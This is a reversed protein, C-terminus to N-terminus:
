EYESKQQNYLENYLGNNAVLEEHTGEEITKGHELVIIKSARRITAFNHSILLASTNEPLTEINRFIQSASQADVAATPEDLVYISADRYFVRALAMKQREGKSLEQGGFEVGIM